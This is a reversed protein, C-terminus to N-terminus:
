PQKVIVTGKMHPFESSYDYVGPKVFRHTYRHYTELSSSRFSPDTGAISHPVDDINTWTVADGPAVIVTAPALAEGITVMTEQGQAAAVSTAIFAALAAAFAIPLVHPSPRM